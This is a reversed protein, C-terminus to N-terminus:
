PRAVPFSFEVLVGGERRIGFSYENGFVLHLREQISKLGYGAGGPHSKGWGVGDDEVTIRCISDGIEARVTVKGGGIKPSVGHRISNEVLPQIILGPITVSDIDGETVISFELKDQFRMKEIFLYAKIIELEQSLKVMKNESAALIYRYLHSLQLIAEEANGPDLKTLHAISNLANFLFHPKIKGQLLEMQMAHFGANALSVVAQGCLVEMVELRDPTFADAIRNNELYLMGGTKGQNMLPMCLVSKPKRAQVYGDGTFIGERSADALIVPKATRAAYHVIAASLEGCEEVPVAQFPESGEQDLSELAEVMLRGKKELLLAGRQAGANELIIRLLKRPLKSMALEGSMAQCAKLIAKLDLPRLWSALASGNGDRDPPDAPVRFPKVNVVGPHSAALEQAKAPAGWALYGHYADRLFEKSKAPDGCESHLRGAMEAALAAFQLYGQARACALSRAYQAQAGAMDGDLKRIEAEALAHMHSFGELSRRAWSGLRDRHGIMERRRKGREKRPLVDHLASLILVRHFCYFPRFGGAPDIIPCGRLRESVRLAEGYRRFLVLMQIELMQFYGKEMPDTLQDEFTRGEELRALCTSADSRLLDMWRRAVLLTEANGKNETGSAFGAIRDAEAEIDELTFSSFPMIYLVVDNCYGAYVPDGGEMCHRFAERLYELTRQHSHNYPSFFSAYIFYVKGKASPNPYREALRMAMRCYSEGVGARRFVSFLLVGYCAYAVASVDSNGYRLSGLLMKLVVMGQLSTNATLFAMSWLNTLLGMGAAAEPTWRDPIRALEAPGRLGKAALVRLLELALRAKGPSAPMSIGLMRLGRIGDELTAAHDLAHESMRARAAFVSAKELPTEAVEMAKAFSARAVAFDANLYECEGKGLFLPYAMGAANKGPGLLDIAAGFYVLAESFAAAAVAKRAARLNIDAYLRREAETAGATWGRNLHGAIEFVSDDLAEPRAQDLQARGIRLHTAAKEAPSLLAYASQRIRDHQFAFGTESEPVLWGEEVPKALGAFVVAEPRDDLLVLDELDFRGGLCACLALSRQTEPSLARLRNVILDIVNETIRMKRIGQLNWHWRDRRIPFDERGAPGSPAILLGEGQIAKLFEIVFFPNGDTKGHVAMALDLSHEPRCRFLDALYRNLSGVPLPHVPITSIPVKKKRLDRIMASLAHGQGVENERYAGIVMPRSDSDISFIAKILDLSAVDSWHLDDLFLVLPYGRKAFVSFFALFTFHMRGQAEAPGPGAMGPPKGILLDLEPVVDALMRASAGLTERLDNRWGALREESETLIQQILGRFAQTVASYPLERSLPDSKGASFYGGKSGVHFRLEQVLSSKGAGAPGSILILERGGDLSRQFGQVLRRIEQERGYLKQPYPFREPLDGQGLPFPEITRFNELGWLCRELDAKLTRASAYRQDASKSILKMVIDSLIRPVAPNRECPPVAELALHFAVIEGEDESQVPAMGVLMEYWLIGLSYLDTRHDVLGEFRGTQEPSIYALNDGPEGDWTISAQRPVPGFAQDFGTLRVTGDSRSLLICSPNLGGHVVGQSHVGALIETLQLAFRLFSETEMARNGLSQRATMGDFDELVLAPMRGNRDIEMARLVGPVDLGQTIEFENRLGRLGEGGPHDPKPIRLMVRRNDRVRVCRVLLTSRGDRVTDFVKYGDRPETM